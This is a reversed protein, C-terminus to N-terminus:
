FTRLTYTWWVGSGAQVTLVLKDYGSEHTMSLIDYTLSNNVPGSTFEGGNQVKAMAVHAGRGNLTLKARSGNSAPTVTYSFTGSGWLAQAGTLNANPECTFNSLGMYGDDYFDGKNDFKYTGPADFSFLYDDNWECAGQGTVDGAPNGWWSGDGPNPGVMEAYGSPMLRWKKQTCGALFAQVNNPDQCATPDNQTITINKSISDLGGHAAVLLTAKYTGAFTFSATATDGSFKQGNSLTWYAMSPMNTKNVLKVKNSGTAQIIEFDAKPLSGLEGDNKEPTCGIGALLALGLSAPILRSLFQTKM